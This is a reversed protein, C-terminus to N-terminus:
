LLQKHLVRPMVFLTDADVAFGVVVSWKAGVPITTTLGGTDALYYRAGATAGTLVDAPGLNVVEVPNGSTSVTQAVGVVEYKSDAGADAKAVQNNAADFYVPDGLAVDEGATFSNEVWAFHSIEIRTHRWSVAM